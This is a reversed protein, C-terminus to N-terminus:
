VKNSFYLTAFSFVGLLLVVISYFSVRKFIQFWLLSIVALVLTATASMKMQKKM